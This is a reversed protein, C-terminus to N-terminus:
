NRAASCAVQPITASQVCGALNGGEEFARELGEMDFLYTGEDCIMPVEIVERGLMPPFILFPTYAPTPVIIKSGPKAHHEIAIELAKLVDPVAHIDSSDVQWAM